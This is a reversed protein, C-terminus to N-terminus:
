LERDRPIAAFSVHTFVRASAKGFGAESVLPQAHALGSLLCRSNADIVLLALGPLYPCCVFESRDVMPALVYKPSGLSKYFERGRLKQHVNGTSALLDGGVEPQKELDAEPAPESGSM